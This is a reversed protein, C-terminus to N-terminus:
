YGVSPKYGSVRPWMSCQRSIWWLFLVLFIFLVIWLTVAGWSYAVNECRRSTANADITGQFTKNVRGVLFEFHAMFQIRWFAATYDLQPCFWPRTSFLGRLAQYFLQCIWDIKKKKMWKDGTLYITSFYDKWRWQKKPFFFFCGITHVQWIWEQMVEVSTLHEGIHDILVGLPAPLEPQRRKRFPQNTNSIPPPSPLTPPQNQPWPHAPDASLTWVTFPSPPRSITHICICLTTRTPTGIPTSNTASFLLQRHLLTWTWTRTTIAWMLARQSLITIAPRTRVTRRLAWPATVQM